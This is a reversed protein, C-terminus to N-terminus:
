REQIVPIAGEFYEELTGGVAMITRAIDTGVYRLHWPEYAYGTIHEKGNPYRIIFGFEACNEALWKGEATEAFEEILAYNVSRSSVDMALGTQHESTGPYASYRRAHEEGQTQVNWNFIAAQTGYSRYGSVAALEIGDEAAKRFLAELARAAPERLHKKEHEGSFSFPVDPVVLDDPAYDKPLGRQKNVLVTLSDPNTVVPVDRGEVAVAAPLVDRITIRAVATEGGRRATVTVVAGNAALEDVQVEGSAADVRIREPHSSEFTVGDRHNTALRYSEGPALTLEEEAFRLPDPKPGGAGGTGSGAGGSPNADAPGTQVGGGADGGAGAGAPVDRAGSGASCGALLVGILIATALAAVIKGSPNM